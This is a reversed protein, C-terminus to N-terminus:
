LGSLAGAALIKHTAATPHLGDWFLYENPKKCVAGAMVEPTLCAQTANTLGYTEPSVFLMSTLAFVDFRAITVPLAQEINSLAAELALNFGFAM